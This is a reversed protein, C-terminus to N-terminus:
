VEQPNDPMHSNPYKEKVTNCQAALDKLEQPFGMDSRHVWKMIADLQESIPPYERKRKDKYTLNPMYQAPTVSRSLIEGDEIYFEKTAPAETIERYQARTIKVYPGQPPQKKRFGTIESGQHMLFM